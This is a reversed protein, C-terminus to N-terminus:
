LFRHGSWPRTAWGADKKELVERPIEAVRTSGRKPSTKASSGSKRKAWYRRQAALAEPSKRSSSSGRRSSVSSKKSSKAGSSKKSKSSSKKPSGLLSAGPSYVPAVNAVAWPYASERPLPVGLVIQAVANPTPADFRERLIDRARTVEARSEAVLFRLGTLQEAGAVWLGLEDALEFAPRLDGGSAQMWRCLEVESPRSAASACWLSAMLLPVGSLALSMFERAEDSGRSFSLGQICGEESEIWDPIEPCASGCSSAGARRCVELPGGVELFKWAVSWSDRQLEASALQLTVGERSALELLLREEAVLWTDRKSAGAARTKSASVARPKASKKATAMLRIM